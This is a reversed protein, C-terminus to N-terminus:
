ESATGNEDSKLLRVVDRALDKALEIATRNSAAHDASRGVFLSQPYSTTINLASSTIPVTEPKKGISGPIVQSIYCSATLTSFQRVINADHHYTSPTRSEVINVDLRFLRDDFKPIFSLQKELERRFKYTAYGDGKVHLEFPQPHRTDGKMM